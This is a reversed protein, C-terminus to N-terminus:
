PNKGCEYTLIASLERVNVHALSASEVLWKYGLDVSGTLPLHIIILSTLAFVNVTSTNSTIGDVFVVTWVNTDAVELQM